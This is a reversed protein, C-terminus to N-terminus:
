IETANNVAGNQSSGNKGMAFNNSRFAFPITSFDETKQVIKSKDQIPASYSDVLLCLRLELGMGLVALFTLLNTYVSTEVEAVQSWYAGVEGCIYVEYGLMCLSSILGLWFGMTNKTRKDEASSIMLSFRVGEIIIAVLCGMSLATWEGFRGLFLNHYYDIKFVTLAGFSLLAFILIFLSANKSLVTMFNKTYEM